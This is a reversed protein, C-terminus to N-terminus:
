IVISKKKYLNIYKMAQTHNQIVNGVINKVVTFESLALQICLKCTRKLSESTYISFM